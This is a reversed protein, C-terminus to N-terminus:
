RTTRMREAVGPPRQERSQAGKESGTQSGEEITEVSRLIEERGAYEGLPMARLRRLVDERAGEREAHAVVDEKQAPYDLSTLFSMVEEATVEGM